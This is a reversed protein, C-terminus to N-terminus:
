RGAGILRLALATPDVVRAALEVGDPLDVASCGNIVDGAGAKALTTVAAGMGGAWRDSDVIAHMDLDLVEVGLLSDSWGYVAARAAIEDAIAQNRAVAAAVRGTLVSWGLSLRLLGLVPVPLEGALQAVGPDLVCDPMAADFGAPMALLGEVVLAESQRIQAETDLARPAAPGIDHLAIEIGPPSLAKYRAQRRALEADDVHIPTLAYIRM